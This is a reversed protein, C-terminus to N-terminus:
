SPALVLSLHQIEVGCAVRLGDFNVSDTPRASLTGCIGTPMVLLTIVTHFISWYMPRKKYKTNWGLVFLPWHIPKYPIFM